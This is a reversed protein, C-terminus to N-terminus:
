EKFITLLQQLYYVGGERYAKELAWSSRKFDGVSTPTQLESCTKNVLKDLAPIIDKDSIIAKRLKEIEEAEFLRHIKSNITLAM